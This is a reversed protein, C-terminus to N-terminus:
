VKVVAVSVSESVRESIGESKSKRNERGFGAGSHTGQEREDRGWFLPGWCGVSNRKRLPSYSRAKSSIEIRWIHTLTKESNSEQTWKCQGGAVEVRNESKEQLEV